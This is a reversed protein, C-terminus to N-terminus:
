VTEQGSQRQSRTTAQSPSAAPACRPGRSGSGSPMFRASGQSPQTEGQAGWLVSGLFLSVYWCKRLVTVGVPAWVQRSRVVGARRKHDPPCFCDKWGFGPTQPAASGRSSGIEQGKGVELAVNGTSGPSRARCGAESGSNGGGVVLDGEAESWLPDRPKCEPGSHDHLTVEWGLVRFGTRDTFGQKGKWSCSRPPAPRDHPRLPPATIRHTWPALLHRMAQLRHLLDAAQSPPPVAPTPPLPLM